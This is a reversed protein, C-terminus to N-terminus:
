EDEKQKRRMDQGGKQRGRQGKQQGTVCIFGLAPGGQSVDWTM